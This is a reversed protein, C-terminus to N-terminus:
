IKRCLMLGDAVTLLVCEVRPDACLKKNLSDIAQASEDKPDVVRGNQLMNDFALLGNTRLRPLVLEYYLDYSPKDADIFAFDFASNAPLAELEARGGGLRLEIKSEIGARKWHRQAIATWDAHVDICLLRGQPSLGRAICIASYGTFTGIEVASRVGLAAVLLTLFSGQERSILMESASGLKETEVRLEDLVPDCSKSRHAAVYRYLNEDLAVFKLPPSWQQCTRPRGGTRGSKKSPTVIRKSQSAM